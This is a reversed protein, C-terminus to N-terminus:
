LTPTHYVRDRGLDIEEGELLVVGELGNAMSNPAAYLRLPGPEMVFKGEANLHGMIRPDVRFRVRTEEGPALRARAFGILEREPRTVSGSACRAYLQVVEAGERQGTNRVTLSVEFAEGVKGRPPASLGSYVFTTYSLGFGFPYLPTSPIDNFANEFGGDLKRYGSGAKNSYYIPCQGVHRPVTIPLRGSPNHEGAIVAALAKGAFPGPLWCELIAACHQDAYNAALPRGNFLALVVPTGAAVLRELLRQQVGPLELSARSKGEGSTAQEHWGNLGGGAFFVVDSDAALAVAEDFGSEDAGSVSCGAAYRVSSQPLALRLEELLTQGGQTKRLYGELFEAPKDEKQIGLTARLSDKEIFSAYFKSLGDMTTEENNLISVMMEVNTPFTYGCFFPRLADGHPGVVAVKRADGGLPLIGDNKLLTISDLAIRSCLERDERRGFHAMVRGTDAYPNDFLGLDYKQKLVKYVAEDLYREDLRGERILRPLARYAKTVPTNAVLGAELCRIAAGDYNDGIGNVDSIKEISSGDCIATGKFALRDELLDRLLKKSRSVPEGEFEDYTVMVGQLNAEKIMAGFPMAYTELLENRDATIRAAHMGRESAAFGLFHKGCAAVNEGYREGQLGQCQEVAFRSVLYKDEGFTEALRGWRADRAVDAVPGLAFRGGVAKMQRREIEGIARAYAPNWTSAVSIPAPFCTAGTMLAGGTIEMQILAPIKLRTNKLLYDQIKNYTAAVAVPSSYFPTAFQTIRGLGREMYLPLREELLEEGRMILFPNICSLQAVKEELTMEALLGSIKDSIIKDSM